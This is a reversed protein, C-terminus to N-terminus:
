ALDFLLIESPYGHLAKVRLSEEQTVAAADGTRLSVGNLDVEGRVVHLWAARGSALLYQVDTGKVLEAVYVRADQDLRASGEGGDPGALLKLKNRKEVPDFKLQEYSPKAGPTAPEVWIQFFHVSETSSGNYESHRIGSGASMRQIENPGLAKEHGMSDRHALSGELVYTLIEMDRHGHAGFGAGPAVRDENIVRLSRFGMFKPDYFDAFSFTHYTNLWGHDAHGREENKRVQLM